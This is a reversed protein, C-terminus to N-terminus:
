PVIWSTYRVGWSRLVQFPRCRLSGVPTEESHLPLRYRARTPRPSRPWAPPAAVAGPSRAYVTQYRFEDEPAPTREIYPPLPVSGHRELLAFLDSCNEFRLKFFEGRRELVTAEIANALILVSDVRPPHSARVQALAQDGSLVREILVEIRGGTKKRGTLRAKIVRTDNFVMVDGPSVLDVIDRFARDALAGGRGAVCLLRSDSREAIPSQAILGPPLDFDFDDLRM